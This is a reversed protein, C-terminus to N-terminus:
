GPLFEGGAASFFEFGTRGTNPSTRNTKSWVSGLVEEFVPQQLDVYIQISQSSDISVWTQSSDIRGTLRYRLRNWPRAVDRDLLLRSGALPLTLSSTAAATIPLLVTTPGGPGILDPLEVAIQGNLPLNHIAQLNLQGSTWKIQHLQISSDELTFDFVTTDTDFTQGPIKGLGRVVEVSDARFELGLASTAPIIASVGQAGSQIKSINMRISSYVESGAINISSIAQSGPAITGYRFVGLHVFQGGGPNVTQVGIVLSDLAMPLGNLITLTLIGRSIELSQLLPNTDSSFNGASQPSIAPLPVSQGSQVAQQLIQATPADLRGALELIPISRGFQIPDVQIIGLSLRTSQITQAPIKIYDEADLKLLTDNRYALRLLGEPSDVQVEPYDLVVDRMNLHFTGVPLGLGPEWDPKVWQSPHYREKLCSSLLLLMM